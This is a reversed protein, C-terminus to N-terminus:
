RKTTSAEMLKKYREDKRLDRLGPSKEVQERSYGADLAKGIWEIARGTEGLDKLSEGIREMSDADNPPAKLVEELVALGKVREGLLGYYGALDILLRADRPNVKRQQEAVEVARGYAESAKAREGSASYAAGLNGWLMYNRANISTAKEYMVAAERFKGESFYLTGLNSLAGYIPKLAVAREFMERAQTNRRLILYLAGLNSYGWPNEPTVEVVRRFQKEAEDYRSRSFYFGGLETYTLWYDPKLAIARRYTAEADATKGLAAYARALGAFADGNRPELALARQCERVADEYKGTTSYIGGLTIHVEALHSNLEAARHASAVAEELFYKAKTKRYAELSAEALGAQALAFSPDLAIAQKFLDAAKTPNSEGQYNEITGRAQIYLGYAKPVATWGATLEERETPKLQLDLMGAMAAAVRDELAPLNAEVEDIVESNIQRLTGTDVLNIALRFRDGERQLSGTVALNVNFIKRAESASRVERARVETTPVVWLAGRFRELQSLTSALIETLGDCFALNAPDGGVNTFPLVAMHQQEPVAHANLLSRVTNRAVPSVALIVATVVALIAGGLPVSIAPRLRRRVRSPTAVTGVGSQVAELAAQVEGGGQYRQGPDKALCREIVAALATPVLAPLPPPDDKLIAAVTDTATPGRFPREGAVMEYLVVGFAFVDARQDVATGRAQEPAMYAVTGLVRGAETAGTPVHTLTEVEGAPANVVLKALGFDIIKVVGDKTIFLNAPKLDRHVVSKEHAAALGHAIQVAMAVAERVLVPGRTLRDRLSEGELFEEVLYPSGEHIGVDHVDLINPHSLAATAKAEREFRKLREADAAFNPPLVKIAVDRGLRTDRAKYVEGMGGAGIRATVEYPGLRTGPQVQRTEKDLTYQLISLPLTSRSASSARDQSASSEM